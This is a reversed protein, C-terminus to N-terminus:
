EAGKIRCHDASMILVSKLATCIPKISLNSFFYLIMTLILLFVTLLNRLIYYVLPLDLLKLQM